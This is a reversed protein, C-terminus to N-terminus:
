LRKHVFQHCPFVPIGAGTYAAYGPVSKKHYCRGPTRRGALGPGGNRIRVGVRVCLASLTFVPGGPTRHGACCGLAPPLVSPPGLSRTIVQVMLGSQKINIRCVQPSNIM